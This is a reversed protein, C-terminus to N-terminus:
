YLRKRAHQAILVQKSENSSSYVSLTDARKLDAGPHSSQCSLTEARALEIGSNLAQPSPNSPTEYLNFFSDLTDNRPVASKKARVSYMYKWNEDGM